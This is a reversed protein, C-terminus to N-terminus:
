GSSHKTMAARTHAAATGWSLYRRLTAVQTHGSFLMLVEDTINPSCALAQLSGRRISRQELDKKARRLAVRIKDGTTASAFLKTRRGALWKELRRLMPAELPATHVTYPGRIRAGKGRRFRVSLSRDTNVQVDQSDLQLVCGTRAATVWALIIAAATPLCTELTLARKIDSLSAPTPQHPLEQRAAIGAARMAQRWLPCQTLIVPPAAHYAPLLALAGQATALKKLLTSHRWSRAEATQEFTTIIAMPLPLDDCDKPLAGLFRLTRLHEQRTTKVLGAQVLHPMPQSPQAMMLRLDSGKLAAVAPLPIGNGRRFPALVEETYPHTGPAGTWAAVLEDFDMPDDDPDGVPTDHDQETEHPPPRQSAVNTHVEVTPQAHQQPPQPVDILVACSRAAPARTPLAFIAEAAPLDWPPYTALAAGVLRPCQRREWRVILTRQRPCWASSVTGVWEVPAPDYDECGPRDCWRAAIRDGVAFSACAEEFAAISPETLSATIDPPPVTPTAATPAAM